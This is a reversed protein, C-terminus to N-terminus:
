LGRAAQQLAKLLWRLTPAAHPMRSLEELTLAPGTLGTAVPDAVCVFRDRFLELRRGPFDYCVSWHASSVSSV